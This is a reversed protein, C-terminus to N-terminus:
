VRARKLARPSPVANDSFITIGEKTTGAVVAALAPAILAQVDVLSDAIQATWPTVCDLAERTTNILRKMKDSKSQQGQLQQLLTLNTTSIQLRVPGLTSVRRVCDALIRHGTGLTTGHEDVRTASFLVTGDHRVSAAACNGNGPSHETHVRLYILRPQVGAGLTGMNSSERKGASRGASSDAENVTAAAASLWAGLAGTSSTGPSKAAEVRAPGGGGGGAGGTAASFPSAGGGGGNNGPMGTSQIGDINFTPIVAPSPIHARLFDIAAAVSDCKKQIVGSKGTIHPSAHAWSAYVGSSTPVTPSYVAYVNSKGKGSM